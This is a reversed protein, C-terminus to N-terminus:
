ALLHQLIPYRRLGGSRNFVLFVIASQQLSAHRINLELYDENGSLLDYRNTFVHKQEPLYAVSSIRIIMSKSPYSCGMIENPHVYTGTLSFAYKMHLHM